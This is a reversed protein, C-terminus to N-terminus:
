LHALVDCDGSTNSEALGDVLSGSVTVVVPHHVEMSTNQVITVESEKRKRKSKEGRANKLEELRDFQEQINTIYQEMDHSGQIRISAKHSSGLPVVPVQTVHVPCQKDEEPLPPESPAGAFSLYSLQSPHRAHLPHISSGARSHYSPPRSVSGHLPAQGRGRYAPPPSLAPPLPPGPRDMLPPGTRDMLLLRLRYEQMSAQYSPPPPRYQFESYMMGAYPHHQSQRPLGQPALFRADGEPQSLGLMARCSPADSSTLRWAIGSVTILM